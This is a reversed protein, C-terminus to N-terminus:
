STSHHTRAWRGQKSKFYQMLALSIIPSLGFGETFLLAAISFKPSVINQPIESQLYALFNSDINLYIYFLIAYWLQGITVTLIGIALGNFYEIYYNNDTYVKKIAEYCVFFALIYNIFRVETFKALHLLQAIAFVAVFIGTIYFSYKLAVKFSKKYDISIIKKSM